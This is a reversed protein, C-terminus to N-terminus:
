IKLDKSITNRVCDLVYVSGTKCVDYNEISFILYAYVAYQKEDNYLIPSQINASVYEKALRKCNRYHCALEPRLYEMCGLILIAVRMLESWNKIFSKAESNTVVDEQAVQRMQILFNIKEELDLESDGSAIGCDTLRLWKLLGSSLNTYTRNDHRQAEALVSYAVRARQHNDHIGDLLREWVLSARIVNNKYNNVTLDEVDPFCKVYLVYMAQNTYEINACDFIEDFASSLALKQLDGRKKSSEINLWRRVGDVLQSELEKSVSMFRANRCHQQGVYEAFDLVKEQARDKWSCVCRTQANQLREHLKPFHNCKVHCELAFPLRLTYLFYAKICRNRAKEFFVLISAMLLSYIFCISLGVLCLAVTIVVGKKVAYIGILAFCAYFVIQFLRNWPFFLKAIEKLLIGKSRTPLVENIASLFISVFGFLGLISEAPDLSDNSPSFFAQRIGVWFQHERLHTMIEQAFNNDRILNYMKTIFCSESYEIMIKGWLRLFALCLVFALIVTLILAILKPFWWTRRAWVWRASAFIKSVMYLLISQLFLLINLIWNTKRKKM